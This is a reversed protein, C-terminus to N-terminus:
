NVFKRIECITRKMDEVGYRQDCVLSLEGDYIKKTREAIGAHWASVPWHVPCYINKSILWKRLADRKGDKVIIPVFLPCKRDDKFDAFVKIGPVETLGEVLVKANDRRKSCVRKIDDIFRFLDYIEEFGIGYDQYDAELLTEARRFMRLFQQKEVSASDMFQHKLSFAENKLKYYTENRGRSAKPLRGDRKGATAIGEVAFWKRYSTFWYDAQTFYDVTFCSHTLDEITATWGFLKKGEGRYHIDTDGFYKMLYLMESERPAPIDATLFGDDNVYVDYFRISIGNRLFPEIMTHCCYSPLLVSSIGYTRIADRVIIDLATRGCLYATEENKIHQKRPKWFESGIEEM